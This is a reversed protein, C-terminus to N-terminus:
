RNETGARYEEWDLVGDGNHVWEISYGCGSGAPFGVIQKKSLVGALISIYQKEGAGKYTWTDMLFVEYGLAKLRDAENQEWERRAKDLSPIVKANYEVMATDYNEQANLEKAQRQTEEFQEKTINGGHDGNYESYPYEEKSLSALERWEKITRGNYIFRSFENAYQEPPIVYVQVFYYAGTNKKDRLARRVGETILVEGPSPAMYSSLGEGYKSSVAVIHENPTAMVAMTYNPASPPLELSSVAVSSNIDSSRNDSLFVAALIVAAACVAAASCYVARKVIAERRRKKSIGVLLATTKDNFDKDFSLRGMARKYPNDM